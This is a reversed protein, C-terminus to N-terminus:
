AELADQVLALNGRAVLLNARLYGAQNVDLPGEITVREILNQADAFRREARLLDVEFLTGMVNCMAALDLGDLAVDPALGRLRAVGRRADALDGADLCGRLESHANMWARYRATM